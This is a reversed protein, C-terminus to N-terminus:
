KGRGHSGSKSAFKPNASANEEAATDASANEADAKDAKDSKHADKGTAVARGCAILERATAEPLDLNDGEAVAKGDAM